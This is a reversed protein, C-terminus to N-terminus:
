NEYRYFPSLLEKDSYSSTHSFVNFIIIYLAYLYGSFFFFFAVKKPHESCMEDRQSGSVSEVSELLEAEKFGGAIRMAIQSTVNPLLEAKRARSLSGCAPDRKQTWSEGKTLSPM